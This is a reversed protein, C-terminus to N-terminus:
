CDSIELILEIPKFPVFGSELESIAIINEVVLRIKFMSVKADILLEQVKKSPSSGEIENYLELIQEIPEYFTRKFSGLIAKHLRETQQTYAHDEEMEELTLRKLFVGVLQLVSHIFSVEDM